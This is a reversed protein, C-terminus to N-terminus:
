EEAAAAEPVPEDGLVDEVHYSQVLVLIAALIPDALAIGVVGTLVGFLAQVTLLLAPPIHVTKRELLPTVLYSEVLQLATYYIVVILATQPSELLGLLAPPILAIMPGINPVFTLLAALLGMLVPLPVGIIALGVASLVGIIAASILRAILWWRLTRVIRSLIEGMRERHDPPVLALFGRRYVDPEAAGYLGVFLIVFIGVVASATASFVGTIRSVWGGGDTEAVQSLDPAQALIFRGWNQQSLTEELRAVAAPLKDALETVQEDLAPVAYILLAVLLGVHALVVALLSTKPGLPTRRDLLDALSRLYIAVLSGAFVLLLVTIAAKGLLLAVGVLAAIAVGIWVKRAFPSFGSM